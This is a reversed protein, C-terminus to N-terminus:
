DRYIAILDQVGSVKCSLVIADGPLGLQEARLASELASAVMAERMLGAADRPEPRKANEDMLRALLAQDLSGWNVGIRVPKDYRGAIEIIRAFQEDRTAGKGVNGPNIRLKDLAMACEPVE